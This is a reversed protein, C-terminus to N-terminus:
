NERIETFERGRDVWYMMGEAVCGQIYGLDFTAGLDKAQGLEEVLREVSKPYLGVTRKIRECADNEPGVIAQLVANRMIFVMEPRWKIFGELERIQAEVGLLDVNERLIQAKFADGGIFRNKKADLFDYYEQETLTQKHFGRIAALTDKGVYIFSGLSVAMVVVGIFVVLGPSSPKFSVKKDCVTLLSIGLAFFGFFWFSFEVMNNLFLMGLIVFIFFNKADAPARVFIYLVYILFVLLVTLGFYGLEVLVNVFINHSHIWLVGSRNPDDLLADAKVSYQAYRGPGVGTVKNDVVSHFVALKRWEEARYSDTFGFRDAVTENTARDIFGIDDLKSTIPGDIKPYILVVIFASFVIGSVAKLKMSSINVTARSILIKVFPILIIILLFGVFARSGTLSGAVALFISSSFAFIPTLRSVALLYCSSGIGFALILATLNAQNLPGILRPSESSVWPLALQLVGYYRLLGYVATLSAIWILNRALSDLVSGSNLATNSVSVAVLLGCLLFISYTYDNYLFQAVGAASVLVTIFACILFFSIIPVQLYCNRMKISTVFFLVTALLMGFLNNPLDQFPFLHIPLLFAVWFLAIWLAHLM